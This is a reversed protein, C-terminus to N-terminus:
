KLAMKTDEAIQKLIRAEAQDRADSQKFGAGTSTFTWSQSEVPQAGIPVVLVDLQMSASIVNQLSPNSSYEVKERALLLGDVSAPLELQSFLDGPNSFARTLLGDSVFAPMFFSSVVRIEDNTFRGILASGVAGNWAGTESATAIAITKVGAARVFNTNVYRALFRAHEEAARKAKQEAEGEKRKEEDKRQQEAEQQRQKQLQEADERQQRAAEATVRQARAEDRREKWYNLLFAITSLTAILVVVRIPLKTKM